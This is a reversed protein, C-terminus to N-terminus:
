RITERFSLDDRINPAYNCGMLVTLAIGSPFRANSKVNEKWAKIYKVLRILQKNDEPNMTCKSFFWKTFGVPDTKLDWQTDGTVGIRIYKNGLLNEYEIYVPLDVHYAIDKSPDIPKYIIRVCTRKNVPPTSTHNELAKVIWTSAAEASPWENQWNSYGRLYLGIDIDFEGSLPRIITGMTFSGQGIFDITPCHSNENFYKKL